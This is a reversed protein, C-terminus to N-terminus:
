EEKTNTNNNEMELQIQAMMYLYARIMKIEEDTYKREKNNLIKKCNGLTIM